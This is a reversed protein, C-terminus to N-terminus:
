SDITLELLLMEDADVGDSGKLRDLLESLMTELMSAKMNMADVELSTMSSPEVMVIQAIGTKTM